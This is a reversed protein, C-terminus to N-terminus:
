RVSLSEHPLARCFGSRFAKVPLAQGLRTMTGAITIEPLRRITSGHKDHPQHPHIQVLGPTATAVPSELRIQPVGHRWGQLASFKYSPIYWLRRFDCFPEWDTIAVKVRNKLSEAGSFRTSVGRSAKRKVMILRSVM